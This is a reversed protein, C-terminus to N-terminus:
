RRERSRVLEDIKAALIFDSETLGNIKHTFITIRVKGWGLLIDPHHGQDEALGGVETTFALAQGFDPFTYERELHHGDVVSWGDDLQELLARQQQSTLTPAGITCPVCKKQALESM